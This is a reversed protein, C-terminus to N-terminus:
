SGAAGAARPQWSPGPPGLAATGPQPEELEKVGLGEERNHKNILKTRPSSRHKLGAAPTRPNRKIKLHLSTSVGGKGGVGLHEVTEFSEGGFCSLNRKSECLSADVRPLWLLRVWVIVGMGAGGGGCNRGFGGSTLGSRAPVECRRRHLKWFSPVWLRVARRGAARGPVRPVARRASAACCPSM